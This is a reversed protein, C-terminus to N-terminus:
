KSRIIWIVTFLCLLHLNLNNQQKQRQLTPYEVHCDPHLLEHHLHLEDNCPVHYLSHNLISFLPLRVIVIEVHAM